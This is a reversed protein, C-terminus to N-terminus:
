FTFPVEVITRDWALKMMGSNKGTDEFQITFTEVEKKGLTTMAKVRLVDATENYSYSGWFDLDSNFIITWTNENPITFLSYTGAALKQDGVMLDRYVKVETAENAGTRWIKNYPILKGFIERENKAPRSYTVRVIAKEGDKRDHAFNHPFYACDMPSKDLGDFSQSHMLSVTLALCGTLLIAKM